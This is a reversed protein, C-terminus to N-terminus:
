GRHRFGLAVAASESLDIIVGRTRPGDAPGRDKIRVDVSRGNRLNTVRLLTGLPYSPHAGVMETKDFREGSATKKGQLGKGYYSAYGIRTTSSAGHTSNVSHGSRTAAYTDIVGAALVIVLAVSVAVTRCTIRAIARLNSVDARWGAHVCM